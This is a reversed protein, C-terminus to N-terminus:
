PAPFEVWVLVGDDTTLIFHGNPPLPPLEGGSPEPGITATTPDIIGARHVRWQALIAGAGSQSLPDVGRTGPDSPDNDYLYGTLRVLAADMVSDPASPAQRTIMDKSADILCKLTLSVVPSVTNIDTAARIIVAVQADTLTFAM